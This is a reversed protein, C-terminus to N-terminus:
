YKLRDLNENLKVVANYFSERKENNFVGELVVLSHVRYSGSVEGTKATGLILESTGNFQLDFKFEQRAAEVNNIFIRMISYSASHGYEILVNNVQNSRFTQLGPKINLSYTEGYNDILRYVLNNRADLYLSLSNKNDNGLDLLFKRSNLDLNTVDIFLSVSLGPLGDKTKDLGFETVGQIIRQESENASQKSKLSQLEAINHNALWIILVSIIPSVGWLIARWITIKTDITM